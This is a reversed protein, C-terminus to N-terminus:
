RAGSLCVWLVLSANYAEHIALPPVLSGSRARLLITGLAVATIALWAPWYGLAETAHSGVFFVTVVSGTLLAGFSRRLGSWLVGRFVFEEIPPALLAIVAWLGRQWGGSAAATALLGWHQTPAPPHVKTALLLYAAALAAGLLTGTAVDRARASCWGLSRLGREAVCGRLALKTLLFATAGGAIMGLVAAPLVVARQMQGVGSPTLEGRTLAYYVAGATGVACGVVLQAVHFAVAILVAKGAGLAGTNGPAADPLSASETAASEASSVEMETDGRASRMAESPAGM